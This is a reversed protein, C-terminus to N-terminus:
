TGYGTDPINLVGLYPFGGARRDLSLTRGPTDKGRAKDLLNDYVAQQRTTDFKKEAMWMLKLGAKFLQPDYLITDDNNQLNDRRTTGDAAVVWGRTVYPLVITQVTSPAEYFVVEGDQVRFLMTFTTGALQRAKLMQWEYERLSGIAPLRTTQNWQADQIFGNWDDPLPYNPVGPSTTITYDRSTFQWGEDIEDLLMQGVQTALVWLQKATPNQSDAVSGPPTLGLIKMVDQVAQSGTITREFDAM